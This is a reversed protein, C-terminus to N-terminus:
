FTFKASLNIRRGLGFFVSASKADFDNLSSSIYSDNNRADSIYITNFVNLVSLKVDLKNRNSPKCTMRCNIICFRLGPDSFTMSVLGPASPYDAVRLDTGHHTGVREISGLTRYPTLIEGNWQNRSVSLIRM